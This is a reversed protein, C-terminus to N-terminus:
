STNTTSLCDLVWHEWVGDSATTQKKPVTKKEIDVIKIAM